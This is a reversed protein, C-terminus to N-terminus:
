VLQFTCHGHQKYRSDHVSSSNMSHCKGRGIRHFGISKLIFIFCLADACDRNLRQLASQQPASNELTSLCVAAALLVAM